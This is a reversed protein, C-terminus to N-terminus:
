IYSSERRKKEKKKKNNNNTHELMHIALYNRGNIIFVETNQVSKYLLGTM